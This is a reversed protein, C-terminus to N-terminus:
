LLLKNKDIVEGFKLPALKVIVGSVGGCLFIKM